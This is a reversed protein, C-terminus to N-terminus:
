CSSYVDRSECHGMPHLKLPVRFLLCPSEKVIPYPGEMMKVDFKLMFKTSRLIRMKNQSIYEFSLGSVGHQLRWEIIAACQLMEHVIHIQIRGRCIGDDCNQRIMLSDVIRIALFCM